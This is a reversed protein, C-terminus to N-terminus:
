KDIKNCIDIFKGKFRLSGKWPKSSLNVVSITSYVNSQKKKIETIAEPHM